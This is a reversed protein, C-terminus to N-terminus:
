GNYSTWDEGSEGINELNFILTWFTDKINKERGLICDKLKSKLM